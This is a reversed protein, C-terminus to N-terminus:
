KVNKILSRYEVIKNTQWDNILCYKNIDEDNFLMLQKVSEQMDCLPVIYTIGDMQWINWSIITAIDKLQKLTPNCNFKYKLNDVFTILLNERALLLSDGQFEYAYISQFAKKTWKMWENIGITNENVIRMKRDLLGIRSYIPISDGSVTDYRSVLYPAEGCSIEMRKAFVYDKWSRGNEKSFIIKDKTSTWKSNKAKNFVDKRNFWQEDILDGYLFWQGIRM